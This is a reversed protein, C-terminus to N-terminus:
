KLIYFAGVTGYIPFLTQEVTKFDGKFIGTLGWNLDASLGWRRGVNFDAGLDWGFQLTRMNDRFDYTAWEGEKDGILIKPGTATGQRLYGNSAIGDFRKNYLVSLYPGCKLKVVRSVNLTAEVPITLMWETVKQEVTGTFLGDMVSSGRVLEMHYAKTTVTGKMAKNEIRVGAMLGWSSNFPHEWDIGVMISPTLKYSDISRITNPLPIPATGGINYGVRVKMQLSDMLNGAVAQAPMLVTVIAIAIINYITKKM